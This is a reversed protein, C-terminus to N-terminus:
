SQGQFDELLVSVSILTIKDVTDESSETLSTFSRQSIEQEDSSLIHSM